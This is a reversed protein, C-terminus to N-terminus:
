EDDDDEEIVRRRKNRGPPSGAPPRSVAPEEDVDGEADDLSRKPTRDRRATPSSKSPRRDEVADSESEDDAVEEEEDSPALFDDEADYEDEKTRGRGAFDSEDDSYIEGRRNSRSGKKRQSGVGPLRTVGMGVEDEDELGGVTLGMGMSRRGMVRGHRERDRMEQADRRKQAKMKEKEAVEMRRKALEPDETIRVMSIGSVGNVADEQGNTAAALSNQLRELAEASADTASQVKLAATLKNTVRLMGAMEQPAALYTFTDQEPNYSQRGRRGGLKSVPTPIQPDLQAPALANATIPYHTTPDSAFQLTLSGDSWRVVRTNSQLRSPDSPSRRWRVTTM